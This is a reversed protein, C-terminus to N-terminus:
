KLKDAAAQAAEAPAAQGKLVKITADQLVPALALIIEGSPVLQASLIVEDLPAQRSPWAALASPRPPLYGAAATWAALFQGETLFEALAAALTQQEPQSGALAWSWGSALTYPNQDLGPLPTIATDQPMASLYSSAWAVVMNASQDGYAQWAQEDSQYSTAANIIMGDQRAQHYFALVETLASQDLTPRGHDDITAGGASLYLCLSFLAQPDAAAFALASRRQRITNWDSPLKGVAAPRYALILAEGAFPLGFTTNQIRALQRAYGYWDPDDLIATLGDLPHLLGKLAAMELDARPLAILDPLVSPAASGAAVLSDLLGATGSATKIRVEIRVDPHLAMFEELRTKLLDGAPAGSAPDFQPPLWIRLTRQVSTPTQSTVPTFISTSPATPASTPSPPLGGCGSLLSLLLLFVVCRFVFARM